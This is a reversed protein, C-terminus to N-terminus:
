HPSCYNHVSVEGALVHRWQWEPYTFGQQCMPCPDSTKAAHQRQEVFRRVPGPLRALDSM